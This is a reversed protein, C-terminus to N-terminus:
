CTLSNGNHELWNLRNFYLHEVAKNKDLFRAYYIEDYHSNGCESVTFADFIFLILM